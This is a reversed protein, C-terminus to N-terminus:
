MNCISFQSLVYKEGTGKISVVTIQTSYVTGINVEPHWIEPVRVRWVALYVEGM